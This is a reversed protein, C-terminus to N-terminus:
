LKIFKYTSLIIAGPESFSIFYVGPGLPSTDINTLVSNLVGALKLQGGANFIRFELPYNGEWLVGLRGSSPNELLRIGLQPAKVERAPTSVLLAGDGFVDGLAWVVDMDPISYEDAASVLSYIANQAKAETGPLLGLFIWILPPLIKKM